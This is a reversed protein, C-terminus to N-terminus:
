AAALRAQHSPLWDEILQANKSQNCRACAPVLNDIAHAGGRSLPVVHDMHEFAGTPCYTCGVLGREAWSTFLDALTFPEVTADLLRARRRRNSELIAPYRAVRSAALQEAHAARYELAKRQQDEKHNAYWKLNNERVREPNRAQWSM